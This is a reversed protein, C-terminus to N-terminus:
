GAPALMYARGDLEVRVSRIENASLCTEVAALVSLVDTESREKLEIMIARRSRRPSYAALERMLCDADADTRARMQLPRMFGGQFIGQEQSYASGARNCRQRPAARDDPCAQRGLRAPVWPDVFGLFLVVSIAGVWAIEVLALVLLWAPASDKERPQVSIM